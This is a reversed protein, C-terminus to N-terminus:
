DDNARQRIARTNKFYGRCAGHPPVELRRVRRRPRREPPGEGPQGRGRDVAHARRPAAHGPAPARGAGRAAAAPYAPGYRAVVRKFRLLSVRAREAPLPRAPQPASPASPPCALPARAQADVSSAPERPSGSAADVRARALRLTRHSQTRGLSSFRRAKKGPSDPCFGTKRLNHSKTHLNTMIQPM